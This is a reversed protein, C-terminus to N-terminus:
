AAESPEAAGAAPEAHAARKALLGDREAIRAQQEALIDTEPWGVARQGLRVPPPFRGAKIDAYLKSRSGGRLAVVERWRLMRVPYTPV